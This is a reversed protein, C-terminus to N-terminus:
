LLELAPTLEPEPISPGDPLLIPPRLPFQLERCGRPKTHAGRPSDPATTGRAPLLRPPATQAGTGGRAPSLHPARPSM